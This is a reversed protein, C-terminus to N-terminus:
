YSGEGSGASGSGSGLSTGRGFSMFILALVVAAVGVIVITKFWNGYEGIGTAADDALAWDARTTNYTTYTARWQNSAGMWTSTLNTITTTGDLASVSVTYNGPTVTAGTSVNTVTVSGTGWKNALTTSGTDLDITENTTTDTSLDTLRSDRQTILIKTGIATVIGLILVGLALETLDVANKKIQM